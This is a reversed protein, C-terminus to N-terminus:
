KVAAQLSQLLRSCHYSIGYWDNGHDQEPLLSLAKKCAEIGKEYEGMRDYERAMAYWVAPIEDNLEGARSYFKIADEQYEQEGTNSAIVGCLYWANALKPNESLVTEMKVLAEEFEEEHNSHYALYVADLYDRFFPNTDIFANEEEMLEGYVDYQFGTYKSNDSLTLFELLGFLWTDCNKLEEGDCGATYTAFRSTYMLCEKRKELKLASLAAYYMLYPSDEQKECYAAALKYAEELRDTRDYCQVLLQYLEADDGSGQEMLEELLGAAEEEHYVKLLMQAMSKGFAAREADTPKKEKRYLEECRLIAKATRDYHGAKDYTLSSGLMAATYQVWLNEPYEESLSLAAETLEADAGGYRKYKELLALAQGDSRFIEYKDCVKQLAKTKREAKRFVAADQAAEKEADAAASLASDM